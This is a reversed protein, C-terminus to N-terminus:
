EEAAAAALTPVVVEAIYAADLECRDAYAEPLGCPPNSAVQDVEAILDWYKYEPDDLNTLRGVYMPVMAQHDGPHIFYWGKPGEFALGELHPALDSPLTSGGAAEVAAVLAQATAFSCETFLDPYDVAGLSTTVAVHKAVMWDNVETDPFTYHYVGSVTAGIVSPDSLAIIDNSNLAGIVQMTDLIGTEAIQQNLAVTTDGAWIPLLVEAGSDKVQQLYVTFDTTELPAYIVDSVFEVGFAGLTAEYALASARGFEYDAALILWKSGLQTAFSALALSDQVTSRCVRYTNPNFGAGTIAPSAGPTAFLVVDYDIAVQQLGVTVGSSPAGVLFEVGEQEVLERAQQSGTDPNSMTDRVVLQVPRGAVRVAALAEEFSGYEEPDIGTAYLLGLKFGMELEGGYLGLSGSQDSLIGIKLPADDQAAAGFSLLAALILLVLVKFRM